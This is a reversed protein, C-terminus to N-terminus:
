SSIFSNFRRPNYSFFLPSIVIDNCTIYQYYQFLERAKTLHDKPSKSVAKCKSTLETILALLPEPYVISQEAMKAHSPYSALDLVVFLLRRVSNVVSNEVSRFVSSEFSNGVSNKLKRESGKQLFQSTFLWPRHKHISYVLYQKIKM